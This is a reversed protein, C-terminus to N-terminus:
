VSETKDEQQGEVPVVASAGQEAPQTYNRVAAQIVACHNSQRAYCCSVCCVHLCSSSGAAQQREGDLGVARQESRAAPWGPLRSYIYRIGAVRQREM